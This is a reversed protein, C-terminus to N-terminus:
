SAKVNFQRTGPNLQTEFVIGEREGEEHVLAGEISCHLVGTKEDVTLEGVRVRDLRPEFTKLAQEIERRIANHDLSSAVTMASFDQLGYTLISARAEKLNTAIPDKARRTNLLQQVDALVQRRRTRSPDHGAEVGTLRDLISLPSVLM